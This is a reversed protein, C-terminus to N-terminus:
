HISRLRDAVDGTIAIGGADPMDAAAEKVHNVTEKAEAELKASEIARVLAGAEAEKIAKDQKARLQASRAAAAATAAAVGAAYKLHGFWWLGLCAAIAAAIYIGPPKLAAGVASSLVRGIGLLWLM